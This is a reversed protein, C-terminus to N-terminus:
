ICVFSNVFSLEINIMLTTYMFEAWGSSMISQIDSAGTHLYIAVELANADIAIWNCMSQRMYKHTYGSTFFCLDFRFLQCGFDFLSIRLAGWHLSCRLSAVVVQASPVFEWELMLALSAIVADTLSTKKGHTGFVIENRRDISVRGFWTRCWWTLRCNRNPRCWSSM